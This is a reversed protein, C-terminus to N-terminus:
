TIKNVNTTPATGFPPGNHSDRSISNTSIMIRRGCLWAEHVLQTYRGNNVVPRRLLVDGVCLAVATFSKGSEAIANM